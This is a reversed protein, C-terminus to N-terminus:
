GYVHKYTYIYVCLIIETCEWDYIYIYINMWICGYTGMMEWKNKNSAEELGGDVYARPSAKSAMPGCCIVGMWRATGHSDHRGFWWSTPITIAQLYPIHISYSLIRHNYM